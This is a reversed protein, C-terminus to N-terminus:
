VVVTLTEEARTCATYLWKSASERFAGSEDHVCVDPWSSGQSKHCTIAWAWDFQECKKRAKFSEKKDATFHDRKKAVHEEFLGQFVVSQRPIEDEDEYKLVFSAEGKILSQPAETVTVMSGNVITPNSTSNKCCILKEGAMPADSDYGLVNRLKTTVNWRNFNTGVIVQVDRDPDYTVNDQSRKIVNVTDGHKGMPLLNGERAKMSLWIIPNDLAQRHIESLFIDPNQLDFGATDKVPPLQGPDGIALIPIGLSRLDKAIESGVMSAEDCIILKKELWKSKTNFQFNPGEIQVYAKDLDHKTLRIIEKLHDMSIRDEGFYVMSDGNREAETYQSIANALRIELVEAKELKPLYIGSHITKTEAKIGGELLKRKLVKSAKGTPATFAVDEINLQLKDVIFPTLFSKGSGAFGGLTLISGNGEYDRHAENHFWNGVKNIAEFQHDTPTSM